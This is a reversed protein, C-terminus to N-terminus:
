RTRTSKGVANACIASGRRGVSRPSRSPRDVGLIAGDRAQLDFTVLTARTGLSHLCQAGVAEKITGHVAPDVAPKHDTNCELSPFELRRRKLLPQETTVAAATAVTAASGKQIM